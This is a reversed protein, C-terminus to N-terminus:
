KHADKFKKITLKEHNLEKKSLRRDISIKGKSSILGPSPNKDTYFSGKKIEINLNANM